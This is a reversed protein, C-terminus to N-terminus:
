RARAAMLVVFGIGGASLLALVPHVLLQPVLVLNALQDFSGPQFTMPTQSLPHACFEIGHVDLSTGFHLRTALVGFVAVPLRVVTMLVTLQLVYALVSTRARALAVAVAVAGLWASGDLRLLLVEPPAALKELALAQAAGTWALLLPALAVGRAPRGRFAVIAWLACFGAAAFLWAFGPACTTEVIFERREVTQGVYAPFPSTVDLTREPPADAALALFGLGLGLLAAGCAARARGAALIAALAALGALWLLVAPLM